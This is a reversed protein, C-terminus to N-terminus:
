GTGGAPSARIIGNARRYVNIFTTPNGSRADVRVPQRLNIKARTQGGQGVSWFDDDAKTRDFDGTSRDPGENKM